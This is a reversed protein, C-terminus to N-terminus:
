HLKLCTISDVRKIDQPKENEIIRLVAATVDERGHLPFNSDHFAVTAGRRLFQKWLYFDAYAQTHNGDVWLLDIEGNNWNQAIEGSFGQILNVAKELGHRTMNQEFQEKSPKVSPNLCYFSGDNGEMQREPTSSFPDISYVFSGSRVAGKGLFILPAVM